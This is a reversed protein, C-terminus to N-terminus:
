SFDAKLRKGGGGVGVWHLMATPIVTGTPDTGTTRIATDMATTRIATGMATTRTALRTAPTRIDMAMALAMDTVM